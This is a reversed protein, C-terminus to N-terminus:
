VFGAPGGGEVSVIHYPLRVFTLTQENIVKKYCCLTHFDTLGDFPVVKYLKPTIYEVSYSHFHTIFDATRLCSVVIFWEDSSQLSVFLEIKGFVPEEEIDILVHHGLTYIMSGREVRNSVCINDTEEIGFHSCLADACDCLCVPKVSSHGVTVSCRIHSNSLKSFLAYQQHRYALTKCINSFNCMIHACRKFFSNKLEYRLCSMGVLPGSELIVTPLHTLLHHKPKLRIGNEGGSYLELFMSLHDAIFERLYAVMGTTVVPAFLLDVLESLHLLFLWHKDDVPVVDGLIIPLYKLLAWCQVAKMSPYLRGPKDVSNLEPPKNCKEVNVASWFGHVRSNIEAVSVADHENCLYFLICSLEVPVIGELVIHMIDLSFNQVAHFGPIQNLVCDFKVGHSHALNRSSNGSLVCKVDENYKAVSRLEFQNEHFKCQIEAQSANCMTCFYDVSFCEVFGLLSNLALNDCAVQLLSVYVTSVPLGPFSGSFGNQALHKMEQVFKNLVAKFGYTKLDHAYCLSVLHVNAFCSNLVNPLNKVIFYFVGVNCMSSQGRLPNTTGMGDYFLQIAICFKSADNLLAHRKYLRGHWCDAIVGPTCKDNQVLMKVYQHNSLLSRLTGEVSIYQFTDYVPTTVGSRTEYRKGLVITQPKVALTHSDFFQDQKYRTSLFQLPQSMTDVQRQLASDVQSVVDDGVGTERLLKVTESQLSHVTMDIMVDVSQIIEPIVCYPISSNARLSAVLTSAEHQLDTVCQRGTPRHILPIPTEDVMEETDSGAITRASESPLCLLLADSSHYNNLHRM